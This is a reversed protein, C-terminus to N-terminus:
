HGESENRDVAENGGLRTGGNDLPVDLVYVALSGLRQQVVRLCPRERRRESSAATESSGGKAAARPRLDGRREAGDLPRRGVLRLWSDDMASPVSASAAFCGVPPSFASCLSLGHSMSFASDRDYLGVLLFLTLTTSSGASRFAIHSAISPSARSLARDLGPTVRSPSAISRATVVATM